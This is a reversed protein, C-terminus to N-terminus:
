SCAAATAPCRPCARQQTWSFVRPNFVGVVRSYPVRVAHGALEAIQAALTSPRVLIPLGPLERSPSPGVLFPPLETSAPGSHSLHGGQEGRARAPTGVCLVVVLAVSITFRRM